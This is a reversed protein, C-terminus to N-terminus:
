VYIPINTCQIKVPKEDELNNPDRYSISTQIANLKYTYLATYSIILIM